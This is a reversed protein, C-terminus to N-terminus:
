RYGPDSEELSAGPIVYDERTGTSLPVFTRRNSSPQSSQGDNDYALLPMASSGLYRSWQEVQPNTRWAERGVRVMLLPVVEGNRDSLITVVTETANPNAAFGQDILNRAASNAEEMMADFTQWESYTMTYNMVEVTETSTFDRQSTVQEVPEPVQASAITTITSMGVVIAVTGLILMALKSARIGVNM